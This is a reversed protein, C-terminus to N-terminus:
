NNEGFPDSPTGDPLYWGSDYSATTGAAAADAASRALSTATTLIDAQGIITLNNIM